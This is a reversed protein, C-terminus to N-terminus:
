MQSVGLFKGSNELVLGIEYTRRSPVLGLSQLVLAVIAPDPKVAQYLTRV